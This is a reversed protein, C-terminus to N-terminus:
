RGFLHKGKKYEGDLLDATTESAEPSQNFIQLGYTLKTDQYIALIDRDKELKGGIHLDRISRHAGTKM